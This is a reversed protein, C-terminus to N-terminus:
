LLKFHLQERRRLTTPSTTPHAPVFYCSRYSKKFAPLFLEVMKIAEEHSTSVCMNSHGRESARHLPTHYQTLFFVSKFVMLADSAWTIPM